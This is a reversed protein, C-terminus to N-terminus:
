MRRRRRRRWDCYIARREELRPGPLCGLKRLGSSCGESGENKTKKGKKKKKNNGGAGWSGVGGQVAADAQELCAQSGQM